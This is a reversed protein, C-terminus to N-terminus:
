RAIHRGDNPDRRALLLSQHRSLEIRSIAAIWLCSPHALLFGVWGHPDSFRRHVRYHCSRCIPMTLLPIFYNETHFHLGSGGRGCISCASAEPLWGKRCAIRVKQWGSIREEGTAGNYSGPIPWGWRPLPCGRAIEHDVLREIEVDAGLRGARM